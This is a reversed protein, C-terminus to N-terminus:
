VGKLNKCTSGLVPFVNGYIWSSIATVIAPGLKAFYGIAGGAASLGITGWLAVDDVTKNGCSEYTIFFLELSLWISVLTMLLIFLASAGAILGALGVAAVFLVFGTEILLNGGNGKGEILYSGVGTEPDVISYGTGSWGHANIGREHFTVEMGAEIAERIEGGPNAVSFAKSANSPNVTYVKQGQSAAIQIAKVASVAERRLRKPQPKASPRERRHLPM